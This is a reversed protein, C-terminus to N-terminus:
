KDAKLSLERPETEDGIQVLVSDERIEKVLVDITKDGVRVKGKEGAALSQNNILAMKVRGGSIGKLALGDYRIVPPAVAYPPPEAKKTPAAAGPAAARPPTAAAQAKVGPRKELEAIFAKPGGRVYGTKLVPNGNADVLFVTPFGQVGYRSALKENASRVSASQKKNRPFDLELLVLNEQAYKRFEPKDFVEDKLRICWGCWDSGTFNILVPKNETQAKQLAANYDTLWQAQGSLPVLVFAFLSIFLLRM